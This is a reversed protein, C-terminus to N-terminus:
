NCLTHPAIVAAAPCETVGLENAILWKHKKMVRVCLLCTVSTKKKVGATVCGAAETM